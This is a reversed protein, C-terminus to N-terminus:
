AAAEDLNRLHADPARGHHGINADRGSGFARDIARANHVLRRDGGSQFSEKGFRPNACLLRRERECSL